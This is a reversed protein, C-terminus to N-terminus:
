VGAKVDECVSCQVGEDKVVVPTSMEEVPMVLVLRQVSRKVRVTSVVDDGRPNIEVNVYRVTASRVVGNVDESVSEVVAMKYKAKIKSSECILVLDGVQTNREKTHWKQRVILGPSVQKAWLEWFTKSVHHIVRYRSKVPLQAVEAVVEQDPVINHSRGLLLQNPTILEYSGDERPKSLGLPRENCINAVDFLITQLEIPTVRTDGVSLKILRKVVGIRREAKGQRWPSDPPSVTWQFKKSAALRRLSGEFENWWSVLAGSASVLQSGPDSYVAGPWGRISGFRSMAELIAEASYDKVVDLHVAGACVDEIVIGWTKKTTRPNVDGRCYFPGFLDLQCCGWAKPDSFMEPPFDGMPQDITKATDKRCPICSERISKALHGGRVTWFGVARFRSLTRDMGSHNFQHAEQMVLHTIRHNPSLLIPLKGNFTFPVYNKLRSGVRWVGNTDLTPALKRYRGQGNEAADKLEPVMEKQSFKILYTKAHQIEETALEIHESPTRKTLRLIRAFVRVIKEWSSYREFLWNLVKGLVDVVVAYVAKPVKLEGELGEKKYTLKIPWSSVDKSIFEPGMWWFSNLLDRVVRPKTCWDAPNSEGAVWAWGFLRGDKSKNSSQIEAIRIGEYPRFNGCEKHLYGLVTSSDVLHYVTSFKLNTEKILFSKIRNGLVAGCLEMRPISVIGKPAIKGKAMILRTWFGGAKLEWRIYAVAGFALKSGDSFVVLTPLGIVEEDPWLSRKFSIEQLELLSELFEIWRKSLEEPLPDDWGIVSGCWSERMLLKAELIIPILFGVPDFIRAVNSLLLRRTFVISGIISQFEILTTVIVDEKDRKLKITVKFKFDDSSPAWRIGLVNEEEESEGGIPFDSSSDGSYTWGNNPMGAHEAIEDLKSTKEVIAEKDTAAVLQDDVYTQEKMERSEEPYVESFMDASQHLACTAICGSPKVGFNNVRVAYVTPAVDKDMNRWLFRQMHMDAQTLHVQNYFKAIDAVAGVRGNRFGIIVSLINNIFRDPGKLLCDNLSPNKGRRRSADFCVRLWKKPNQVAVMPLLHYDGDWERIEEETLVVAAGREVMAEIQRNFEEALKPDRSLSKELSALSQLAIKDNKLVTSRPVCWPYETYWRNEGEVRFLNKNIIDFQRQEEFMYKSGPVPCRGCKCGGCNPVVVTGLAEAGFFLDEQHLPGSLVAACIAETSQSNLVNNLVPTWRVGPKWPIASVNLDSEIIKQPCTEAKLVQCEKTKVAVASREAAESAEEVPSRCHPDVVEEVIIPDIVHIVSVSDPGGPLPDVVNKGDFPEIVPVAANVPGSRFSDVVTKQVDSSDIANVPVDSVPGSRCSDVVSTIVVSPGLSQDTVDIAAVRHTDYVEDVPSDPVDWSPLDKVVAAPSVPIDMPRLIESEEVFTSVTEKSKYNEVRNPCFELEHSLPQHNRIESSSMIHYAENVTFLKESKKTGEVVGPCRGGVCSGFKGRWIWFDGGGRAREVKDPHWSPQLAGLLVQVSKGRLLTSITKSSLHPFLNKLRSAGIKSVAGTITEMGYAEFFELNGDVDRLSCTYYMVSMVTNVNGLTTVALKKEVGKFGCLKAFDERVFNLSSGLDWFVNAEIGKRPSSVQMILLMVSEQCGNEDETTVTYVRAELCFLEHVKHSKTCGRDEKGGGCIRNKKWCDDPKHDGVCCYKCDGNQTLLKIREAPAVKKLEECTESLCSRDAPDGKHYACWFKKNKPHKKNKNNNGKSPCNRKIHGEKKCGFCTKESDGVAGIHFNGEKGGGGKAPGEKRGVDTAAIREWTEKQSKMWSVFVPFPKAKEDNTKSTLTEHWKESVSRPFKKLIASMATVNSLEHERGISMLRTYNNELIVSYSLLSKYDGDAVPKPAMVERNICSVVKVPDGYFAALRQMAESYNTEYGVFKSKAADDLHDLLMRSWWKEEYEPILLQWEQNWIPFQLFPSSKEDGQFKPLCVQEKRTSGQMGGSTKVTVDSGKAACKLYPMVWKQLALYTAEAKDKFTDKLVSLDEGSNLSIVECLKKKLLIFDADVKTWESQKVEDTADKLSDQLGETLRGFTEVISEVEVKLSGFKATLEAAAKADEAEQAERALRKRQADALLRSDEAKQKEAEEDRLGATKLWASYALLATTRGEGPDDLYDLGGKEEIDSETTNIFEDQAKDLAEWCKEMKAYQPDVLSRPSNSEVLQKLVNLSRTFKSKALKRAKSADTDAM